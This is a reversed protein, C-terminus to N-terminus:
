RLFIHCIRSYWLTSFEIIDIFWDRNKGHLMVSPICAFVIKAFRIVILVLITLQYYKYTTHLWAIRYWTDDVDGHLAIEVIRGQYELWSIRLIGRILKIITIIEINEDKKAVCKISDKKEAIICCIARM